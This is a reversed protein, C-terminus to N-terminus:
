ATEFCVEFCVRDHQCQYDIRGGLLECIQRCISLGLGSGRLQQALPHRYYREFVQQPDPTMAPDIANSVRFGWGRTKVSASVFPEVLVRSDPPAYKLANDILNAAVVRLLYPDTMVRPIAGSALALRASQPSAEMLDQLLRELRITELRPVIREDEIGNALNCREIIQDITEVSRSINELRRPTQGQRGEKTQSLTTIAFSISALPNKIEHTLMDLLMRKEHRSQRESELAVTQSDLVAKTRQFEQEMVKNRFLVTVLMGLPWSLDILRTIYIPLNSQEKVLLIMAALSLFLFALYGQLIWRLRTPMGAASFLGLAPAILALVMALPVLLWGVEQWGVAFALVVLWSIAYMLTNARPYMRGRQYPGIMAAYIWALCTMRLLNSANFIVTGWWYYSAQPWLLFLAGSGISVSLPVLATLVLLRLQLESPSTLYSIAVLLLVMLLMGLHAALWMQEPNLPKDREELNLRILAIKPAHSQVKVLWQSSGPPLTLLFRHGGLSASAAQGGFAAGGEHTQLWDSGAASYITVKGHYYPLVALFRAQPATHANHIRLWVLLPGKGAQKQTLTCDREVEVKAVDTEPACFGIAM